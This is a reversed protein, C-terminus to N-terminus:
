DVARGHGPGLGFDVVVIVIDRLPGSIRLRLAWRGHMEPFLTAHYSGPTGSEVATVPPVNHAMPMDPMDAKIVIRAGTVPAGGRRKSLRITCSYQLPQATEHCAVDAKARESASAQHAAFAACSAALLAVAKVSLNRVTNALATM